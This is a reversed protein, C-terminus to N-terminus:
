MTTGQTYHMPDQLFTVFMVTSVAVGAAVYLLLAKSDSVSSDCDDGVLGDGCCLGRRNGIAFAILSVALQPLFVSAWNSNVGLLPYVITLAVTVPIGLLPAFAFALPAKVRLGLLVLMGPVYLFAAGALVAAFFLGWM